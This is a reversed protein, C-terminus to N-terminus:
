IPAQEDTLQDHEVNATRFNSFLLISASIVMIGAATWLAISSSTITAIFGGLPAGLVIMGRNMSRRTASMRAILRDPTVAQWYGMDLPGEVGMSLWFVFQGTVAVAFGAWLAAPWETPSDYLQETLPGHTAAVLPALAILALAVPQILRAAIMTRGTGWREGARISILTGVVSGIGAGTLVLGLGVAGIRLDNLVLVPLVAGMMASGIFWTHSSWALPALRPHGYIWRLGEGIKRCVTGEAHSPPTDTGAHKLSVLVAGSIVHTVAGLLLAFPATVVAVVGGAIASGTTQAVTDSQQLRANARTLLPRPVLRPLFSQYAADSMLALTGFGFMLGMVTPVNLVGLAGLLCLTGLILGRGFDGTILVTRRRFRDVWIGALLGFLLYPAWRAANVLGQDLATGELSVLVLVSLAVTTIYTGFDSVTSASWFRVFAANRRLRMGTM